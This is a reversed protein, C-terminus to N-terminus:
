LKYVWIFVECNLNKEVSWVEYGLLYSYGVGSM